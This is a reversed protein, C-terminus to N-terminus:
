RLLTAKPLIHYYPNSHFNNFIQVSGVGEYQSYHPNSDFNSFIQVSGKMIVSKTHSHKDYSYLNQLIHSHLLTKKRDINLFDSRFGGRWISLSPWVRQPFSGFEAGLNPPLRYHSWRSFTSHYILRPKMKFINSTIESKTEDRFHLINSWDQNWRSCTLHLYLWSLLFM